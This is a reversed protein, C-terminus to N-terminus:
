LCAACVLGAQGATARGSAQRAETHTDVAPSPPQAPQAGPSDPAVAKSGHQVLCATWNGEESDAWWCGETGQVMLQATLVAKKCSHM